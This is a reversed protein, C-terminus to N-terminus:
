NFNGAWILRDKQPFGGNQDTKFPFWSWVVIKRPGGGLCFSAGLHPLLHLLPYRLFRVGEGVWRFFWGFVLVKADHDMYLLGSCTEVAERVPSFSASRLMCNCFSVETSPCPFTVLGKMQKLGRSSFFVYIYIYIYLELLSRNRKFGVPSFFINLLPFFGTKNALIIWGQFVHAFDLIKSICCLRERFASAVSAGLSSPASCFAIKGSTGCSTQFATRLLACLLAPRRPEVCPFVIRPWVHRRLEFM